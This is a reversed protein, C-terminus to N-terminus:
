DNTTVSVLWLRENGGQLVSSALFGVGPAYFKDELVGPELPSFEQTVLCNNFTGFPVTITGDLNLVTAMDQAVGVAFEQQYTDGVQPHAEMVIGPLAGNVGAEWSGATSIVQGHRYEATNEGFYWVNGQSDQAYFDLATEFLQGNEYVTDRVETTAVGDIVKTINTVYVIDVTTHGNFEGKYTFTTGPILPSLPNNILTGSFNGPQFGGPPPATMTLGPLGGSGGLASLLWRPELAEVEVRATSKGSYPRTM